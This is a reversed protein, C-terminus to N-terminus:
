IVWGDENKEFLCFIRPGKRSEYEILSCTAIFLSNSVLRRRQDVEFFVTCQVWILFDRRLDKDLVRGHGDHDRHGLGFSNLLRSNGIFYLAVGTRLKAELLDVQRLVFVPGEGGVVEEFGVWM